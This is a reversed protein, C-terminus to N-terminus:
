EQEKREYGTGPLAQSASAYMQNRYEFEACRYRKFKGENKFLTVKKLKNIDVILAAHIKFEHPKKKWYTMITIM